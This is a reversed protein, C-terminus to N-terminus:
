PSPLCPRGRVSSGGRGEHYMECGVGRVREDYGGDGGAIGPLVEEGKGSPVAPEDQAHCKPASKQQKGKGRSGGGHTARRKGAMAHLSLVSFFDPQCNRNVGGRSFVVLMTLVSDGDTSPGTM